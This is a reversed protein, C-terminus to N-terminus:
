LMYRVDSAHTPYAYLGERLDAATLGHRIALAFLNVVEEAGHGLLHAGLIRGSREEVLVKFGSAREAIRRSSAWSGSEGKKVEFRLSRERAESELLGVRAIPPNAFAVSPLGRYDPVVVNGELLNRAAAEGEITAVPTLPAGDAAAADGAAYVAPNSVSQLHRTVAVGRSAREVSGRGLDLDDLDPVRGAGHVVMDAEIAGGRDGGVRVRLADGAREVAVVPSRVRLDVGAQRTADSLADVLDPDFGELPREGRHLITARAGAVAAVHAFEFSVYGGGIFVIRGPLRDLALFDESTSVLAEGPIGLPRPMAGAAVVVHSADLREDDVALARPGVFRAVGRYAAIGQEEFSRARAEPVPDTFARKSAALAPWDVVVGGPDVGRGELRRAADVASTAAVLVKKPDCGRLACTGGFPRKDVVAVSRGAERCASAVTLGAAGSGVVVVDFSPM